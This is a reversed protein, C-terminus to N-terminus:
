LLGFISPLPNYPLADYLCKYHSTLGQDVPQKMLTEEAVCGKLVGTGMASCLFIVKIGVGLTRCFYWNDVGSVVYHSWGPIMDKQTVAM